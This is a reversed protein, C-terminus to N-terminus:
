VWYFETFVTKYNAIVREAQEYTLKYDMGDHAIRNRVKHAEWAQDLSQFDNEDVNMLKEGVSVGAYGMASLMDDLLVDAAVIAQRWDNENYSRMWLQIQTWQENQRTKNADVVFEEASLEPKLDAETITKSVATNDYLSVFYNLAIKSYLYIIAFLVCLIISIQRWSEWLRTWFAAFNAWVLNTSLNAGDVWGSPIETFEVYWWVTGYATVPGRTVKGLTNKAQEGLLNGAPESLVRLSNKAVVEQNLTFSNTNVGVNNQSSFPWWDFSLGSQVSSTVTNDYDYNNQGSWESLVSVGSGSNETDPTVESLNNSAVLGVLLALGLFVAAITDSTDLGSNSSSSTKDAM